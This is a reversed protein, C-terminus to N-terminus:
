PGQRDQLQAPGETGNVRCAHARDSLSRRRRALGLVALGVGLLAMTSPEPVPTTTPAVFHEQARVTASGFGFATNIDETVEGLQAASYVASGGSLVFNVLAAYERVTLGNLAPLTDFNALILDGFPIGSAGLTVGADSFDINLQIATVEGGFSGAATSLPNVHDSNLTGHEGLAPLYTLVALPNTFVISFGTAGPIGVELEGFTSAYVTDYNALLLGAANTPNPDGGWSTQDYTIVDGDQWVTASAPAACLFVVAVIFAVTGRRNM